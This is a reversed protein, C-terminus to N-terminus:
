ILNFVLRSCTQSLMVYWAPAYMQIMACAGSAALLMFLIGQVFVCTLGIRWSLGYHLCIGYAFYSNLGMGPALGFPLNGIMGVVLSGIAASLATATV